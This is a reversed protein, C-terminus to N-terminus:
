ILKAKSEPLNIDASEDSYFQNKVLSWEELDAQIEKFQELEKSLYAKCDEIDNQTLQL